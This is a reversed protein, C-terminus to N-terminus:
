TLRKVGKEWKTEQNGPEGRGGRRVRGLESDQESQVRGPTYAEAEARRLAVTVKEEV